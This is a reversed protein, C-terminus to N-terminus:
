GFEVVGASGDLEESVLSAEEEKIDVVLGSQFM